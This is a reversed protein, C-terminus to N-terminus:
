PNYAPAREAVVIMVNLSGHNRCRVLFGDQQGSLREPSGRGALPDFPKSWDPVFSVGEVGWNLCPVKLIRHTAFAKIATDIIEPRDRDATDVRPQSTM